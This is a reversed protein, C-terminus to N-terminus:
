KVLLVGQYCSQGPGRLLLGWSQEACHYWDQLAAWVHRVARTKPLHLHHNYCVTPSAGSAQALMFLTVTSHRTVQLTVSM